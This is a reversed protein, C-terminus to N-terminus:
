CRFVGNDEAAYLGGAHMRLRVTSLFSFLLVDGRGAIRCERLVLAFAHKALRAMRPVHSPQQPFYLYCAWLRQPSTQKNVQTSAFM